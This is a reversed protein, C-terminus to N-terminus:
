MLYKTCFITKLFIKWSPCESDRGWNRLRKM